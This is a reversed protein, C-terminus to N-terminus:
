GHQARVLVWEAQGLAPEVKGLINDVHYYRVPSDGHFADLRDVDDDLSTTFEPTM